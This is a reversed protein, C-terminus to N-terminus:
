RITVKTNRVAAKKPKKKNFFHKGRRSFDDTKKPRVSFVLLTVTIYYFVMHYFNINKVRVYAGPLASLSDLCFFLMGALNEACKFIMDGLMSSLFDAFVALFGMIVMLFCVPVAVLNAVLSIPTIIHFLVAIIPATGIWVSASVSLSKLVYEPVAKLRAPTSASPKVASSKFFEEVFPGIWICSAVCAFSLIFGIDSVYGPNITLLAILSACMVNRISPRRGAMFGALFLGTMLVARWVSPRDGIMVAYLVITIIILMRAPKGAIGCIRLLALFAAALIGVHLGSIALIHMTGTEVFIKRVGDDLANREGFLMATLVHAHPAPMRILIHRVAMKRAGYLFRKVRVIVGPNRNMKIMTDKQRVRCILYVRKRALHEKYDFGSESKGPFPKAIVGEVALLDGYRPVCDKRFHAKVLLRGSCNIWDHGSKLAETAMTFCIVPCFPGFRRIEPDSAVTGTVVSRVPGGGTLGSIHNEARYNFAMGRALSAAFVIALVLADFRRVAKQRVCFWIILFFAAALVGILLGKGSPLRSSVIIGALFVASILILPHRDVATIGKM